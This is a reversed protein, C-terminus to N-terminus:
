PYVWDLSKGIVSAWWSVNFPIESINMVLNLRSRYTVWSDVTKFPNVITFGKPTIKKM